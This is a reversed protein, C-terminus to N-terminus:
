LCVRIVTLNFTWENLPFLFTGLKACSVLSVLYFNDHFLTLLSLPIFSVSKKKITNMKSIYIDIEIWIRNRISMNCGKNNNWSLLILEFMIFVLYINNIIYKVITTFFINQPTIDCYQYVLVWYKKTNQLWM